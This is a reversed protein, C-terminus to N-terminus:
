FSADIRQSLSSVRSVVDHISRCSYALMIRGTM